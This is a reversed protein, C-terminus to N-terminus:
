KLSQSTGHKMIIKGLLEHQKQLMEFPTVYPQNLKARNIYKKSELNCLNVFETVLSCDLLAQYKEGIRFDGLITKDDPLFVIQNASMPQPTIDIKEGDVTIWIAHHIAELMFNPVPNHQIQIRWGLQRKGGFQKVKEKVNSYCEDEKCWSEPVLKVYEPNSRTTISKCFESIVNDIQTPTNSSNM